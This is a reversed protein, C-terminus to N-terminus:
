LQRLALVKAGTSGLLSTSRLLQLWPRKSRLTVPRSLTRSAALRDAGRRYLADVRDARDASFLEAMERLHGVLHLLGDRRV